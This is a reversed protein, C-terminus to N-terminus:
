KALDAVNDKTVWVNDVLYETYSTVNGELCDVALQVALYGQQVADQSVTGTQLGSEIAEIGDDSADVGTIIVGSDEGLANAAGVAMGDNECVIADLEYNSGWSEVTEMAKTTDWDAAAEVVVKVDPYKALINQYGEYRLLGSADGDPGTLIAINGKGDLLDCVAQMEKEGAETNSAGAYGNVIDEDGDIKSVYNICVIGADVVKQATDVLGAPDVPEFIIADYGDSICQEIDSIQQAVDQNADFHTVSVGLAKAAEDAGETVSNQFANTMHQHSIAIKYEKSAKSATATSSSSSTSAESSESSASSSTSAASSSSSTSAASSSSSSSSGCGAFMAVAMASVASFAVIKKMGKKM